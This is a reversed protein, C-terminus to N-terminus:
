VVGGSDMTEVEQSSIALSVTAWRISSTSCPLEEQLSKTMGSTVNSSRLLM